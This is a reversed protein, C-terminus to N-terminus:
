RAESPDLQGDSKTNKPNRGNLRKFFNVIGGISFENEGMIGRQYFLVIAMIAISFVVKRFGPRLLPVTFSGIMFTRDLFRLWWESCAIFLFSSICSGTVSGMGGIVVILLIEYTLASKFQSAQITTQFMALLAGSIGAFFSSIVFSLQKTKALNIGMAEAAIEDDRVAKFARGYTSNILLMIVAICLASVFFYFLCSQFVPYKRLLNSGNTLAGIKDWQFIARVIEAFGLTAIALYDSKLHLVPLGILWAFVAAVIGALVLALAVPLTFQVLGGDFYQYVQSRAEVPITFIGYTYAGLLMFGAQGLSFLGTFGNLLNMSVAVLSYIAGKKLVTFLISTRPLVAELVALVAFLLALLCFGAVLNKRKRFNLLLNNQM